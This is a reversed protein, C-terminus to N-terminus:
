AHDLALGDTACLAVAKQALSLLEAHDDGTISVHGAKRGPRAAKGYDHVKLSASTSLAESIKHAQVGGFINVMVGASAMLDASGLPLDLVARLHQEFQSTESLETFIHGSNHPRMALENVLLGGDTTVFMEVALVGTVDLGQAIAFAIERAHLSLQQAEPAPALVEACVGNRQRTEVLPWAVIEGSPRRAVLQAVERQFPIKEELLVPGTALWDSVDAGTTAVRVGKGDYGGRPTKAIIAPSDGQAIFEEVDSETAALAWRPIPLSLEALRSRMVSKDQASQLAQPGPRVAVGSDVLRNLIEVPVHEHDFTIVDVEKAFSMVTEADLYDGVTTAALRASSDATEALVHIDIGMVIAPPIMM